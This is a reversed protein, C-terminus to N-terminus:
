DKATMNVVQPSAAVGNYAIGLRNSYTVGTGTSTFQVTFTCTGTPTLSLGSQLCTSQSGSVYPLVSFQASGTGAITPTGSFTVNASSVNRVILTEIETGSTVTGFVLPDPIFSLSALSFTGSGNGFLVNASGVGLGPDPNSIWQNLFVVDQSGNGNLDGVAVSMAPSNTQFNTASGFTGNGNGLLVAVGGQNAASLLQASTTSLGFILDLPESGTRTAATQLSMVSYGTLNLDHVSAAGFTGNGNGLLISYSATGSSSSPSTIPCTSDAACDNSVALDVNGNGFNGAVIFRTGVGGSAYSVATQLTGNGNGLLVSVNGNSCGATACHNAVAVSLNGTGFNGLAVSFPFYGGSPYTVASQLTGDGNGLLVSIAGGTSASCAPGGSSQCSSATVVDLTSNGRLSGIALAYSGAAGTAYNVVNQFTGDGNGLLVGISGLGSGMTTSWSCTPFVGPPICVPYCVSATSCENAVVIDLKGNGRLDALAVGWAGFGGTGYSVATQFTGDGNGLLVSVEGDPLDSQGKSFNTVVLDPIGDGNVDATAVVNPVNGGTLTQARAPLAFATLLCFQLLTFLIKKM